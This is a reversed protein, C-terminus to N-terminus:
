VLTIVFAPINEGESNTHPQLETLLEGWAPM